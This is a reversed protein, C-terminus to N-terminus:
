SGQAKKGFTMIDPAADMHQFAWFQSRQNRFLSSLSKALQLMTNQLRVKGTLGMGSQVEDAILMVGYKDAIARLAKWFEPRFHHDGGEGQVPEIIIAAIDISDADLIARLHTLSRTEAEITLHLNDGELPFRAKPNEVRPWDKFLPFYLYKRVDTNTLSLSYGSRGHFAEKFHIITQGREGLGAAINKRVKWDMAAKLANEVALSGGSVLFLYKFQPPMAVREFTAVFQAM